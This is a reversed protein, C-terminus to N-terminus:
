SGTPTGGGLQALLRDKAVQFEEDTLAGKMRLDNLRSLEGLPGATAPPAFTVDGPPPAAAAQAFLARVDAPANAEIDTGYAWTTPDSRDYWVPFRDGARPIAVRSVTVTKEADFAPSGDTPEIRMHIEVRPNENITVGTDRVETVTGVGKAGHTILRQAKAVRGKMWPRLALTGVLPLVGFFVFGGGFAWGFGRVEDNDGFAAAAMSGLGVALFTGGFAFAGGGLFVSVVSLVIGAPLLLFYPVSESPCPPLDGGCSGTQILEFLSVAIMVNGALGLLVGLPKTKGM